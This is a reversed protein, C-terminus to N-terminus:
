HFQAAALALDFGLITNLNWKADAVSHRQRLELRLSKPSLFGIHFACRLLRGLSLCKTVREGQHLQQHHNSDDRQQHADQQGRQVLHPAAAAFTAHM